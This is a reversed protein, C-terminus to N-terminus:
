RGLRPEGEVAVSVRVVTGLRTGHEEEVGARRRGSVLGDLEAHHIGQHLTGHELNSLALRSELELLLKLHLVRTLNGLLRNQLIQM